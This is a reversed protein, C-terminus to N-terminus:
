PTVQSVIKQVADDVSGDNQVTVKALDCYVPDRKQWMADFEVKPDGTLIAPWGAAMVRAFVVDKPATIHVPIQSCILPRNQELLPTGGGLAIVGAPKQLTEALVESELARFYDVGDEAVIQRCTRHQGVKQFYFQETLEDLEYYPRCLYRALVRGISSKGVHKFGMLLIHLSSTEM